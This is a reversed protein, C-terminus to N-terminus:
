GLVLRTELRVPQGLNWRNPSTKMVNEHIAQLQAPTGKARLRVTTRVVDYGPPVDPSLGLFGRLDLAGDTELELSEIEIGELACGAVYGVAMCANYAAMLIEQPNPATNGGLLEVPEDSRLVFDKALRQGGLEWATVHADSRTGGKWRTAVQFRALGTAPNRAVEDAIRRLAETDIGNVHTTQTAM